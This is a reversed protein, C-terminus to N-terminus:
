QKVVQWTGAEGDLIIKLIYTGNPSNSIDVETLPATIRVMYVQQGSHNFLRLYGERMNGMHQIEVAFRGGNPNPYIIVQREGLTEKFLDEEEYAEKNFAEAIMTSDAVASEPPLVITRSTRNGANDYGYSVTQAQGYILAVMAFLPTLFLTKMTQNYKTTKLMKIHM